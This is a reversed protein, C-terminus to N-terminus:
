LLLRRRLFGAGAIGTGTGLLSTLAMAILGAPAGTTPMQRMVGVSTTYMRDGAAINVTDGGSIVAINSTRLGHPAGDRVLLTYHTTWQQGPGIRPLSWVINGETRLAGDDSSVYRLASADYRVSVTAGGVNSNSRNTVTVTYRIRTGPIAESRDAEQTIVLGHGSVGIRPMPAKPAVSSTQRVSRVPQYTEDSHAVIATTDMDTPGRVSEVRVGGLMQGGIDADRRVRVTYSFTRVGYAAIEQGEWRINTGDWYGGQDASLFEAFTSVSASIVPDVAAYPSRNRVHISYTLEQGREATTRYDTISVSYENPPTGHAITTRDTASAPGAQVRTFISVNEHTRRLTRLKFHYTKRENPSFTQDQWIIHERNITPGGEASEFATATPLTVRVPITHSVDDLNRVTVTYSLVQDPQAFTQEDTIRASFRMILQEPTVPGSIMTTDTASVGESVVRAVMLKDADATPNVHVQVTLRTVQGREVSIRRWTVTGDRYSGGQDAGVMSTQSPLHFYVDVDRREERQQRLRIVYIVSDGRRVREKGDTISVFLAQSEPGEAVDDLSACDADEPYDFKGDDDNDRGDSCQTHMAIGPAVSLLGNALGSAALLGISVIGALVKPSIAIRSM